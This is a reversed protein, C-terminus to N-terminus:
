FDDDFSRDIVVPVSQVEADTEVDRLVLRYATAKNFTGSRLELRLSKKREDINSSASDFTLTEVSTVPQAGEYVAARVTLPLRREGVAETQIIEFRYTPTTIKHNTGLVQVPVRESRLGSRTDADTRHNITLLPVIVEQPMAGGHVFRAGGTFHFRNAARPVWFEMDGEAGATDAIRGHHAEATAGLQQGIVYRKKTKVAHAPKHALQSRDTDGPAERQFLFGHDATIWIRAVNLSNVCFQVLDVLERICDAVAEFTENETSASDGRADIVNHYIYVVRKGKVFQRAAERSMERLERAQVAVGDEEALRKSRAETGAVPAGDVLVEGGDTYALTEHPLLSAMGLATYSPLVGLMASLEAGVPCRAKVAELLERAAEYRFADSIIVFARRRDLQALYPRVVRAFFEAQAPYASSSWQSLFGADLLRSWERGFPQLFGQDYAREVEESLAKLLDWGQGLAGRSATCFRRYLRDIPHLDSEYAALAAEADEFDFAGRNERVLQFLEAAALIADYADAVARVEPRDRGAGAIWHGARREAVISRLAGLDVREPAELVCDKLGSVVRREAEWFTYVESLAELPLGALQDGIKQEAAVAEAAADYSTSRTSSDRWQTLFVVANRTGAPPLRHHALTELGAEGMEHLLESVFLRRLLGALSPQDAEYGFETRLAAWFPELLGMKEFQALVEPVSSLEFGGADAHGDCVAVLVEFPSAIASGALVAQMKLDLTAEDDTPAALRALQRRREQSGLFVARARLHERVSLSVLGLEQLWLSSVDAHFQESYLRIDLLWDEDPSVAEGESYVLYQGEPDERELRLKASLGGVAQVDLVSVSSLVGGLGADVYDRFEGKADHWFVLRAGQHVFKQELAQDVQDAKM